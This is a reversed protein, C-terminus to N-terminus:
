FRKIICRPDNLDWCPQINDIALQHPWVTPPGLTVVKVADVLWDIVSFVGSILSFLLVVVFLWRWLELDQSDPEPKCENSFRQGNM